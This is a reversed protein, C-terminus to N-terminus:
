PQGHQRTLCTGAFGNKKVRKAKGKFHPKRPLLPNKPAKLAFAEPSLIHALAGAGLGMGCNKLFHRRTKLQIQELLPNM